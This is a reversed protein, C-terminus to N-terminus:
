EGKVRYFYDNVKVRFFPNLSPPVTKLMEVQKEKEKKYQLLADPNSYKQNKQKM